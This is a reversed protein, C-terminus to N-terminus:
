IIQGKIFLPDNSLIAKLHEHEFFSCLVWGMSLMKLHFKRFQSWKRKLKSNFMPLHAEGGFIKIVLSNSLKNSNEMENQIHLKVINGDEFIFDGLYLDSVKIHEKKSWANQQMFGVYHVPISPVDVCDELDGSKFIKVKMLDFSLGGKKLVSINCVEYVNMIAGIVLEKKLNPDILRDLDSPM